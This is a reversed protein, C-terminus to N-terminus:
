LNLSKKQFTQFSKGTPHTNTTGHESVIFVIISALLMHVASLLSWLSTIVCVDCCFCKRSLLSLEGASVAIVNTMTMVKIYRWLIPSVRYCYVNLQSFDRIVFLFNFVSFILLMNWMSERDVIIVSGHKDCCGSFAVWFKILERVYVKSKHTRHQM